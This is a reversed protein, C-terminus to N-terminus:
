FGTPKNGEAPKRYAEMTAADFRETGQVFYVSGIEQVPIDDSDKVKPLRGCVAIKGDQIGKLFAKADNWGMLVASEKGINCGSSASLWYMAIAMQNARVQGDVPLPQDFCLALVSEIMSRAEGLKSSVLATDIETHATEAIDERSTVELMTKEGYSLIMDGVTAWSM